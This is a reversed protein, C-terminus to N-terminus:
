PDTATMHAYTAVKFLNVDQKTDKEELCPIGEEHPQCSGRLPRRPELAVWVSWGQKPNLPDEM